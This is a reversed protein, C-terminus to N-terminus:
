SREPKGKLDPEYAPDFGPDCITPKPKLAQQEMEDLRAQMADVEQNVKLRHDALWSRVAQFVQTQGNGNAM